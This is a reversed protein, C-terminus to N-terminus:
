IQKITRMELVREEEVLVVRAGPLVKIKRVEEAVVQTLLQLVLYQTQREMEAMEVMIERVM